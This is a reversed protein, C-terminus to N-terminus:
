DDGAGDADAAAEPVPKPPLEASEILAQNYEKAVPPPPLPVFPAAKLGWGVYLNTFYSGHCICVAGPWRM